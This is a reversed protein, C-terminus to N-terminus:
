LFKSFKGKKLKDLIKKLDGTKKRDMVLLVDRTSIIILNNIGFTLTLSRNSFILSQDTDFDVINGKKVNQGKKSLLKYLTEWDGVDYWGFNAPVMFVNAAKELIATDISEEPLKKWKGVSKSELTRGFVPVYKDIALLLTRAKYSNINANWYFRGNSVFKKAKELGPKEKFEKVRLAESGALRRSKSAQIYGKGTDPFTPKIGVTVLFNGQGAVEQSARIVKAFSKKDEIYHDSAFVTLLANKDKKFLHQAALGAAALTSKAVPEILINESRLQRIEKRVEKLFERSTVVYIKDLEFLGKIRNYTEQLLTRSNFLKLFQKPTKRRSIPWLRTGGGGALIVAYKKTETM